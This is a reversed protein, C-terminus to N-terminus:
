PDHRLGPAIEEKRVPRYLSSVQSRKHGPFECQVSKLPLAPHCHRRKMHAINAHSSRRGHWPKGACRLQINPGVHRYFALRTNVKETQVCGVACGDPRRPLEEIKGVKGGTHLHTVFVSPDSVCGFAWVRRGFETSTVSGDNRHAKALRACNLM